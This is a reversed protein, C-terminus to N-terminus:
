ISVQETSSHILKLRSFNYVKSLGYAKIASYMRRHTRNLASVDAGSRGEAISVGFAVQDGLKKGGGM